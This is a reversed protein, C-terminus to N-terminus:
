VNWNFIRKAYKFTECVKEKLSSKERKQKYNGM